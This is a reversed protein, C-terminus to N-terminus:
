PFSGIEVCYLAQPADCTMLEVAGAEPGSLTPRGVTGAFGSNESTWAVGGAACRQGSAAPDFGGTWVLATTSVSSGDAHATVPGLVSSPDGVNAVARAGRTGGQGPVYRPGTSARLRAAFGDGPAVSLLAVFSTGAPRLTRGENMCVADAAVQAEGMAGKTGGVSVFIAGWRGVPAGDVARADHPTEADAGVPAGDLAGADLLGAESSPGTAGDPPPAAADDAPSVAAGFSTCASAIAALMALALVRPSM